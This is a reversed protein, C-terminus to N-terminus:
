FSAPYRYGNYAIDDTFIGIDKRADSLFKLALTRFKHFDFTRTELSSYLYDIMDNFSDFVYQPAFLALQATLKLRQSDFSALDAPTLNALTTKNIFDSLPNTIEIYLKIKEQYNLNHETNIKELMSKLEAISADHRSKIETILLDQDHKLKAIEKEKDYKENQIIRQAWIKAIYNSFGYVILVGGGLSSLISLAINFYDTINLSVM